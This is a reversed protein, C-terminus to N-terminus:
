KCIINRDLVRKQVQIDILLSFPLTLSLQPAELMAVMDLSMSSKGGLYVGGSSFVTKHAPIEKFFLHIAWFPDEWNVLLNADMNVLLPKSRSWGLNKEPNTPLEFEEMCIYDKEPDEVRIEVRVDRLNEEGANSVCFNILGVYGISRYHEGLERYYDRNIKQFPFCYFFAWDQNHGPFTYDPLSGPEPIDIQYTKLRLHDGLPERKGSHAFEVKLSPAPRAIKQGSEKIKAVEETGAEQVMDRRLVYIVYKKLNAYDEKLFFPREQLPIHILGIKKRDVTLGHYSFLISKQVKSSVFDIVQNEDLHNMIGLVRNKGEPNEEVGILIYTDTRRWANAASIIDKLIQSKELILAGEFRYEHPRFILVDSSKEYLLRDILKEIDEM